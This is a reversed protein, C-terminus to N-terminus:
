RVAGKGDPTKDPNTVGRPPDAARAALVRDVIDAGVWKRVDDIVGATARRLAMRTAPSLPDLQMGKDQLWSLATAEDEASIQHQRVAAIAAAERVIKQAAPDLSAFAARGAVFVHFDLFHGTDSLYKQSEYYRSANIQAYNSEVGDIDGQRLAAPVDAFDMAIPRAGIAQFMAVHTANPLVRITLGKFDDLTRLPRKSNSVVFTGLDMWALVAFGKAELKRAILSGVPGAVVRDAEDYNKFAFPLSVATIEPVLRSFYGVSLWTGFIHGVHVSDILEKLSRPSDPVVDIEMSGYSLREVEDRFIQMAKSTAHAGPLGSEIRLTTTQAAARPAAALVFTALMAGACARILKM